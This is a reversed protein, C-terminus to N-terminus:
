QNEDEAKDIQVCLNNLNADLFAPKDTDTVAWWTTANYMRRGSSFIKYGRYEWPYQLDGKRRKKNYKKLTM